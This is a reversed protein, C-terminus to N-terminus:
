RCPLLSRGSSSSPVVDPLGSPLHDLCYQQVCVPTPGPSNYFARSRTFARSASRHGAAESVACGTQRQTKGTQIETQM